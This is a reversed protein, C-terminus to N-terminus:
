AEDVGGRVGFGAVGTGEVVRGGVNVEVMGEGDFDAEEIFVGGRQETVEESIAAALGQLSGIPGAPLAWTTGMTYRLTLYLNVPITPRVEISVIPRDTSRFM